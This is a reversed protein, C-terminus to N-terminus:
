TKQELDNSIKLCWISDTIHSKNYRQLINVIGTSLNKDTHTTGRLM